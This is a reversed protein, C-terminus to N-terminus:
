LIIGEGILNFDMVVYKGYLPTYKRIVGWKDTNTIISKVQKRVITKEEVEVEIECGVTLKESSVLYPSINYNQDSGYPKFGGYGKDENIYTVEGIIGDKNDTELLSWNQTKPEDDVYQKFWIMVDMLQFLVSKFLYPTKLKSVHADIDSLHSGPQTVKLISEFYNAIQLPLVADENLRYKNYIPTTDKQKERWM